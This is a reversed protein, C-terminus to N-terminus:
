FQQLSGLLVSCLRGQAPAVARLGHSELIHIFFTQTLDQAEHVSHGRRRVFAYLPPWYIKCLKLLAEQAGQGAKLVLSWQTTGFRASKSASADSPRPRPLM